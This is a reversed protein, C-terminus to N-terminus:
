RRWVNVGLGKAKEASVDEITVAHQEGPILDFWNDSPRASAPLGTIAVNRAYADAAITMRHTTEDLQERKVLLKPMPFDMEGFPKAFYVSKAIMGGEVTLLAVICQRSPDRLMESIPDSEWFSRSANAPLNVAVETTELGCTDFTLVGVHLIARLYREREDSTVYVQVRDELQKFSVIIPAFARKAYYYATKPRLYYDVISWGVAPWCDNYMWMLAGSIAWKERRYHEVEARIFEGQLIGAYAAFEDVTGFDGMMKRTFDVLIEQHSRKDARTSHPNDKNHFEWVEGDPPFLADEPMFDRISEVVPPGQTTFESVFLPHEEEIMHLWRVHDGCAAKFWSSGHRDGESPDNGFTGGYPSCPRYPRTHDLRKLVNPIVEHFLRKGPWEADPAANMECENNGCWLVISPHARLRKVAIEAERAVERAFEDDDRYTACAFMFDQWVMIGMEDCARYFEPAEYVGGGWVRLMNFGADKAMKVLERYREPTVNSVFHDAPIWNGGKCFVEEGNILFTFANGGREDREVIGVTRVGFKREAVDQVEGELEVGVMCTYLPQEGFGNPWWLEPEEIRVVVELVGGFPSVWDSIELKERAEGRALVVSAMVQQDEGTHNELEITIWADAYGGVIEPEVHLDAISVSDCSVLRAGRWIGAGVFRHTWDWGFACQMKRSNVRPTDFCGFLGTCDQKELVRAAPDFRVAVTNRGERIRDTVDFRCPTFMNASRGVELGNLFVTAYTDLGDFEIFTKAGLFGEEVEFTRKYWWEKEEVWQAELANMGYYPDPIIGARHLDVHVEGPVRGEIERVGPQLLADPAAWNGTGEEFGALRWAGNLSLTKKL